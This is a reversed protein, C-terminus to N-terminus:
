HINRIKEISKALRKIGEEISQENECSYNLRLTNVNDEDVYFPDGPVFAVKEKIAIDFLKLACIDEPLTAWLFMGGEPSTCHVEGPLYQKIAAIMAECQAKYMKRIKIIHEDLPNDILHQYVVRQSFYNTHLDAAQKATIIKEMTNNGACLWGLRFAPAVIKSFSGLLIINDEKFSKLSPLDKGSFRLEGYPDDEVFITHYDNLIQATKKRKEASYSIGSPNQFNPVSYYLKIPYKKLTDELMATDIGDENLTVPHFVPEYISLAQIAGLYAPKEIIVHDGKNLFVKGILDLAQQSGNTIQINDPSVSIGKRRAYREAIFERLPLYGETTSYQLATKGDTELVKICANKIEDVPFTAPNPLGGAFSIIEPNETVKLIERIFSKKVQGMRTAFYKNM